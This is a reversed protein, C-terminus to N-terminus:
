QGRSRRLMTRQAGRRVECSTTRDVSSARCTDRGPGGHLEDAGRGGRLVDGGQEGDIRDAGGGGALIDSGPGGILHDDGRGGCARDDALSGQFEDDGGLGLFTDPERGGSLEESGPTGVINVPRGLCLVREYAGADCRGGRPAGRQDRHPCDGGRDLAPSGPRLAVTPTPGGNATAPGLLLDTGVRDTPRDFGCRDGDEVNGGTSRLPGLCGDSRGRAINGAVITLSAAGNPEAPAVAGGRAARNGAITVNLLSTYGRLYLGGGVSRVRNNAITVNLLDLRGDSANLIGGGKRGHNRLFTSDRVSTVGHNEIGGAGETGHNRTFLSARVTLTGAADVVVAGAIEGHGGSITAHDLTLRADRVWAFGATTTTAGFATLRRVRATVGGDVEFL